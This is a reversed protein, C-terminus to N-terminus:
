VNTTPPTPWTIAQPDSYAEPLERLQQRYTAWAAKLEPSLVADSLQTWDSESLLRNRQPRFDAWTVPIDLLIPNGADDTSIYKGEGQAKLMAKYAAFEVPVAGEPVKNIRPDLFGKGKLFFM